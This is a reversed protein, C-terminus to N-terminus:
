RSIGLLCSMLNDLTMPALETTLIEKIMLRDNLAEVHSLLKETERWSDPERCASWFNHEPVSSKLMHSVGLAIDAARPPDTLLRQLVTDQFYRNLSMVRARGDHEIFSDNLLAELAAFFSMSDRLSVFPARDPLQGIIEDPIQDPDLWALVDLLDKSRQALHIVEWVTGLTKDYGPVPTDQLEREASAVLELFQAPYCSKRKMFAAAQRLALPWGDYRHTIKLTASQDEEPLPLTSDLMWSIFSAGEVDRFPHMPIQNAALGDELARSNRSTIIVSGHVSTPWYPPLIRTEDVNDYVILWEDDPCLGENTSATLIVLTCAQLRM